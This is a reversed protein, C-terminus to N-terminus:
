PSPKGSNSRARRATQNKGDVEHLRTLVLKGRRAASFGTQLCQGLGLANSRRNKQGDMEVGLWGTHGGPLTLAWGGVFPNAADDGRSYNLVCLLSALLAVSFRFSKMGAIQGVLASNALCGANVYTPAERLMVRM